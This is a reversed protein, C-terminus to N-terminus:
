EVGGDVINPRGAEMDRMRSRRECRAEIGTLGPRDNPLIHSTNNPVPMARALYKRWNTVASISAASANWASLSKV